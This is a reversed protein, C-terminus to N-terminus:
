ADAGTPEPAPIHLRLLDAESLDVGVEKAARLLAVWHRVPISNRLRMQRIHSATIQTLREIEVPGGLADILEHVNKM